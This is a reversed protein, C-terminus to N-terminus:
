LAVGVRGRWWELTDRASTEFSISPEWGTDRRIKGTDAVLEPAEGTRLRAPDVVLRTETGRDALMADLLDRLTHGEGSGINYAEGPRGREALARLAAGVDRVDSFDRRLDVTGVEIVPARVGAEIEAVQRAFSGAVFRDSRRPGLQLFPRARVVAVGHAAWYQYGMVDQAVKSVAYPTAPQLPHDEDVPNRLPRGYEDASGIVVVRATPAYQRLAELVQFQAAVNSWLTELPAALSEAVSSQAALHHVVDPRVEAVLRAVAPGDTLEVRHLTVGDPPSEEPPDKYTGHVAADAYLATLATGIFGTAGTILVRM